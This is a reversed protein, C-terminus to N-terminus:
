DPRSGALRDHVENGARATRKAIIAPVLAAAAFIAALAIWGPQGMALVVGTMLLPGIAHSLSRGVSFAALYTRPQGTTRDRVVPNM